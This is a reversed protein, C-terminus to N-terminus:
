VIVIPEIKEQILSNYNTNPLASAVVFFLDNTPVTLSFSGNVPDSVDGTIFNGTIQDYAFINKSVPTGKESVFGFIYNAM